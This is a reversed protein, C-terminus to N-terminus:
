RIAERLVQLASRSKYMTPHTEHGSKDYPRAFTYGQPVVVDYQKALELQKPNPNQGETLRGPHGPIHTPAVSIVREELESLDIDPM